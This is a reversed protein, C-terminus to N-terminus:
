PQFLDDFSEKRPANPKTVSEKMFRIMKQVVGSAEGELDARIMGKQALIKKAKNLETDSLTKAIGAASNAREIEIRQDAQELQKISMGYAMFDPLNIKPAQMTASAGSPTSAGSGDAGLNPNLGAAIMDQMERQHATSSMRAQFDMQERAIDRNMENTRKQSYYNIAEGVLPIGIPAGGGYGGGGGGGTNWQDTHRDEHPSSGGSSGGGFLNGLGGGSFWGM